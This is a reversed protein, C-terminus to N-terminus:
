SRAMGTIRITARLKQGTLRYSTKEGIPRVRFFKGIQGTFYPITLM